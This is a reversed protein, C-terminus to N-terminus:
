WQPLSTSSRRINMQRSPISSTKSRNRPTLWRLPTPTATTARAKWFLEGDQQYVKKSALMNFVDQSVEDFLEAFGQDELCFPLEKLFDRMESQKSWSLEEEAFPRGQHANVQANDKLSPLKFMQLTIYSELQQKIAKRKSKDESTSALKYVDAHWSKEVVLQQSSNFTLVASFDKGQHAHM